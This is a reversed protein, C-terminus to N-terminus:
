CIALGKVQNPLRAFSNFVHILILIIHSLSELKLEHHKKILKQIKNIINLIIGTVEQENKICKTILLSDIKGITMRHRNSAGM